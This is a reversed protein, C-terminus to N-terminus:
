IQFFIDFIWLFVFKIAIGLLVFLRMIWRFVFEMWAPLLYLAKYLKDVIAGKVAPCDPTFGFAIEWAKREMQLPNFPGHDIFINKLALIYTTHFTYVPEWTYILHTWMWEYAWPILGYFEDAPANESIRTYGPDFKLMRITFYEGLWAIPNFRLDWATAM